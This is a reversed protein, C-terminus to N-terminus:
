LEGWSEGGDRATSTPINPHQAYTVSDVLFEEAGDQGAWSGLRSEDKGDSESNQARLLYGKRERGRDDQAGAEVLRRGGVIWDVRQALARGLRTRQARDSGDGLLEPSFEGALSFLDAVTVARDKYAKWWADIFDSWARTEADARAHFADTNALFGDIGATNLIGGIVEAWSEYSGLTRAKFAPRGNSIWNQVLVLLAWVLESRHQDVWRRIPHHKFESRAWPRESKADLRIWVTRRALERSFCLNNGTAIWTARVPLRVMKSVGLIRDSWTEATLLAALPGGAVRRTINDFLAFPRGELLVATIRKRLEEEEKAETMVSIPEGTAVRAVLDALLGKGTGATPADIGHLPTPGDIIERVFPTLMLGFAHAQSSPDVFPFDWLLECILATARGLDDSTPTTPVEAVSFSAPLDLYLGVEPHYGPEVVLQGARTFFPATAIGRLTPLDYGPLSLVNKVVSLPPDIIREGRDTTV